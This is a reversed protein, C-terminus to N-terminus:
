SPVCKLLWSSVFNLASKVDNFILHSEVTSVSQALNIFYRLSRFKIDLLLYTYFKTGLLSMDLASLSFGLYKM